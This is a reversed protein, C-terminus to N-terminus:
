EGSEGAAWMDELAVAGDSVGRGLYVDQTMSVRMHGLQDAIERATMGAEDMVTAVTKRFVHPTVWEFGARDRAARFARGTNSPDRWAGGRRSYFGGERTSVAPFVPGSWGLIDGRRILMDVAWGPLRLTREGATTKTKGRRLGEGTVRTLTYDIAVTKDHVDVEAWSVALCEGIRAGTALLFRTLDPIDHRVALEDAAMAALWRDREVQTLARAKKAPRTRTLRSTDRVPNTALVDHRVALGFMGSLAARCSKAMGVGVTGRVDLLFGDVRAVTAEGLRLGGIRPRIHQEVACRYVRLTNPAREGDDVQRSVQELWVDALAALTSDRSLNADSFGPRCRIADLLRDRADAKSTGERTVDRLRGDTDRVWARARVQRRGLTRYSIEGHGGVPIRQRAM